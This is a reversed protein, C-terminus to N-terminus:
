RLQRVLPSGASVGDGRQRAPQYIKVTTPAATEAPLYFTGVVDVVVHLTGANNYVSFENSANILTQVANPVVTRAAPNLNSANPMDFGAPWVTLHTNATPSVATVNMAVAFTDPGAPPTPVEITATVQPGLAAPWGLGLRTDAIRTPVNPTFRLGDLLTGDDYFGVIDVIIHTAQHAYVGISPWGEAEGCDFCPATPVIAFNPVTRNATFNLTSAEPLAFPDGNWAILHGSGTPSVATINVAFAKVQPDIEDFGAAVLIYEGPGVRGGGGIRTDALRTPEVPFYQGGLNGVSAGSYYGSIDVIV